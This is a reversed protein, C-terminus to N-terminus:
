FWFLSALAVAFVGGLSAYPKEAGGTFSGTESPLSPITTSALGVGGPGLSITQGGIATTEPTSGSGIRYTTGSIIAETAGVSFVLGGITVASLTPSAAAVGEPAVTTSPFIIGAPGVTIVQGNIRTTIPVAGPGITFTQGAIIVQNRGIKLSISGVTMTSMPGSAASTGGVIPIPIVTGPAIVQSSSITFVQGNVTAVTPGSSPNFVQGGILVGGPGVAVPLGNIMTVVLEPGAGAGRGDGGGIGVVAPAGGGGSGSGSGPKSTSKPFVPNNIISVILSGLGGGGAGGGSNSGSGGSGSGGGGSGGGGSHGGGSGGTQAASIPPKTTDGFSPPPTTDTIV